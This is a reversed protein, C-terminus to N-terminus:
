NLDVWTGAYLQLKDTDTNYIVTGRTPTSLADRQATTLRAPLLYSSTGSIIIPVNSTITSNNINLRETGGTTIGVNDASNRQFYTNGDSAFGYSSTSWNIRADNTTFGSSTFSFTYGSSVVPQIYVSGELTSNNLVIRQNGDGPSKLTLNNQGTVGKVTHVILSSDGANITNRGTWTNTRAFLDTSGIYYAGAYVNKTGTLSTTGFTVNSGQPEITLDGNSDMVFSASDTDSGRYIGFRRVRLNQTSVFGTDKYFYGYLNTSGSGSSIPVGGMKYEMMGPAFDPGLDIGTSDLRFLINYSTYSEDTYKRIEFKSTQDGIWYIYSGTPKKNYWNLNYGDYFIKSKALSDLQISGKVYLDQYLLMSKNFTTYAASDKIRTSGIDIYHKQAFINCSLTILVILILRTIKM